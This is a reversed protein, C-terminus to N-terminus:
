FKVLYLQRNTSLSHKSMYKIIIIIILEKNMRWPFHTSPNLSNLPTMLGTNYRNESKLEGKWWSFFVVQFCCITYTCASLVLCSQKNDNHACLLVDKQPLEQRLASLIVFVLLLLSFVWVSHTQLSLFHELTCIFWLLHLASLEPCM